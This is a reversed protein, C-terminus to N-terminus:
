LNLCSQLKSNSSPVANAVIGLVDTNWVSSGLANDQFTLSANLWKETEPIERTGGICSLSVKFCKRYLCELLYALNMLICLFTDGERKQTHTEGGERAGDNGWMFVVGECVYACAHM